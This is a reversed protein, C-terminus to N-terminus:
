GGAAFDEPSLRVVQAVGVVDAGPIIIRECSALYIWSLVLEDEPPCRFEADGATM